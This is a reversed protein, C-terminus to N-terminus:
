AQDLSGGDLSPDFPPLRIMGIIESGAPLALRLRPSGHMADAGSPAKVRDAPDDRRNRSWLLQALESASASDRRTTRDTAM